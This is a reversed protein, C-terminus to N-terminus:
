ASCRPLDRPRRALRTRLWGGRWYFLVGGGTAAALAKWGMPLLSAAMWFVAIVTVTYVGAILLRSVIFNSGALKFAAGRLLYLAPTLSVYRDRDLLKGKAADDAAVLVLGEDSYFADLTIFFVQFGLSSAVLM